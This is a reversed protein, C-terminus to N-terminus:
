AAKLLKQAAKAEAARDKDRQKLYAAQTKAFKTLEKTRAEDLNAVDPRMENFTLPCGPLLSAVFASERGIAGTVSKWRQVAVRSVGLVRALEAANGNQWEVLTDLAKRCARAQKENRKPSSGVKVATNVKAM